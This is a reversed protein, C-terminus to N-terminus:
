RLINRQMNTFDQKNYYENWKNIYNDIKEISEIQSTMNNEINNDITNLISRSLRRFLPKLDGFTEQLTKMKKEFFDLGIIETKFMEVDSM